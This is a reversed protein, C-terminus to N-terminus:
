RPQSSWENVMFEFLSISTTCEKSIRWAEYVTFFIVQWWMKIVRCLSAQFPNQHKLINNRNSCLGFRFLWPEFQRTGVDPASSFM